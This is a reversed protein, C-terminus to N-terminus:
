RQTRSRGLELDLIQDLYQLGAYGHAVSVSSICKVSQTSRARAEEIERESVRERGRKEEREKEKGM